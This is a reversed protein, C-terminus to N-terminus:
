PSYHYWVYVYGRNPSGRKGFEPHFAFALLGCDDWGQTVNTLNLFEVLNSAAPDNVFSFIQGQRTSVCLRHTGPAPILSTPDDVTLNTFADVVVWNGTQMLAVPPLQGNLFGDIPIRHELGYPEAARGFGAALLLVFMAGRLARICYPSM